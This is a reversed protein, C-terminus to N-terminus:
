GYESAMYEESRRHRADYCRVLHFTPSVDSGRCRRPCVFSSYERIFTTVLKVSVTFSRCITVDRKGTVSRAVDVAARRM